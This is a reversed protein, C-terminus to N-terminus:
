TIKRNSLGDGGLIMNVYNVAFRTKYRFVIWIFGSLHSKDLM